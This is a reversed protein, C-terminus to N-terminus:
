DSFCVTKSQISFKNFARTGNWINRMISLVHNISINSCIYGRRTNSKEARSISFKNMQITIHKMLYKGSVWSMNSKLNGQCLLPSFAIFRRKHDKISWPNLSQCIDIYIIYLHHGVNRCIMMYLDRIYICDHLIWVPMLEWFAELINFNLMLWIIAPNERSRRNATINTLM